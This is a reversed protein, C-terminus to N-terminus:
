LSGEPGSPVNATAQEPIGHGLVSEVYLSPNMLQAAADQATTILFQPFLGILVTLAALGACPLLLLYRNPINKSKVVPAHPHPKWFAEGWIKTMSYITFLAAFLAAAVIAYSEVELGAKVLQFKAWFGSLPPFGALSFAPILFLLSIWPAVKYIGGMRPLTSCGAMSKLIGGIFFLNAKVIIHHVIYFVAGAIASTTFLALEMVMYGIQSIIHFSLIRRINNQVAAGLVGSVMTFGAIWLLITHTWEPDQTFILTFVRILAYVGVKTLLGAFIASVTVPPVHYSAPLWFFLPFVASKIGFAIVFFVAVANLYATHEVTPIKVALDAMNLTGTLGYLMGIGGLFLVTSILNLSVYKITGYLQRKEGGISMLAFSSILMVEFWVYLNFIDGTLFAGNIGCLLFQLFPFFGTRIRAKDIDAAAYITTATAIIATILVMLASLIDAVFVIGFPATWNGLTVSLIDGDRVENFLIISIALLIFTALASFGAQFRSSRPLMFGAIGAIMPILVPLLLLLNVNISFDTSLGMSM